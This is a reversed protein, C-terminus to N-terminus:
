EVSENGILSSWFLKEEIDRVDELDNNDQRCPFRFLGDKFGPELSPFRNANNSRRKSSIFEQVERSLQLSEERWVETLLWLPMFFGDSQVLSTLVPAGLSDKLKVPVFSVSHETWENWLLVLVDDDVMALVDLSSQERLDLEVSSVEETNRLL